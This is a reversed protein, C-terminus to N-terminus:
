RRPVVWKGNSTRVALGYYIRHGAAFKVTQVYRRCFRGNALKFTGTPTIEGSWSTDPISWATTEGSKKFELATQFIEKMQRRAAPSFKDRPPLVALLELRKNKRGGFYQRETLVYHKIGPAYYWTRAEQVRTKSPNLNYSFRTCIVKWTDFEGAMVSIQETGAVECTWNFRYYKEPEGEKRSTVKETFSATKGEQLPWLSTDRSTIFDSRPMFQRTGQRTGQRTKTQWKASRYTFDPYRSYVNGRHNRWTVLKASIGAVTEWSGDSYVYTTGIEYRPLSAPNLVPGSPTPATSCGVPMIILQSWLYFLFAVSPGPFKKMYMALEKPFQSCSRRIVPLLSSKNEM